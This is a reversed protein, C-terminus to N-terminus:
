FLAKKFGCSKLYERIPNKVLSTDFKTTVVGSHGTNRDHGIGIEFHKQTTNGSFMDKGFSIKGNGVSVAKGETKDVERWRKKSFDLTVIFVYEKVESTVSAPAFLVTNKWNWYCYIKGDPGQRYVFPKNGENNLALIGDIIQQSNNQEM